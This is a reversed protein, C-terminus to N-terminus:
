VPLYVTFTTGLGHESEVEIKGKHAEIIRLSFSLGLGSGTDKTSYFPTFLRSMEEERIGCGTDAFKVEMLSQGGEKAILRTSIRLEGGEDKMSEIANVVLNVAVQCIRDFDVMIKPLDESLEKLIKINAKEIRKTVMDLASNVVQNIDIPTLTLEFPHAFVLFDDTFKTLKDGQELIKDIYAQKPDDDPLQSKLIETLLRIGALPNKIEHAVGAALEGITALKLLRERETMTRRLEEVQKNVRQELTRNIDTLEDFLYKIRILSKVRALVEIKDIPKTLFDDAGAEIAMIKEEKEQLITIMVVPIISTEKEEKVRRCVEYGNLEPMIIDLLIIDPHFQNVKELAEKGNCASIVDYQPKLITELLDINMKEDDVVLVKPKREKM